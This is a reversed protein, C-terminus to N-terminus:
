LVGISINNRLGKGNTLLLNTFYNDKRESKAYVSNALSFEQYKSGQISIKM